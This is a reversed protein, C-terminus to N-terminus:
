FYILMFTYTKMILKDLLEMCILNPRIYTYFTKLISPESVNFQVILKGKSFPDRLLPMGEGM